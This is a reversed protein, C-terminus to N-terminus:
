VSQPCFDASSNRAQFIWLPSEKLQRTARPGLLGMRSHRRGFPLILLSRSTVQPGKEEQSFGGEKFVTAELLDSVRDGLGCPLCGREPVWWPPPSVARLSGWALLFYSGAQFLEMHGINYCFGLWPLSLGWPVSGPLLDMGEAFMQHVCWASTLISFQRRSPLDRERVM